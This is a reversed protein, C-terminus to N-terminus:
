IRYARLKLSTQRAFTADPERSSGTRLPFAAAFGQRSRSGTREFDFHAPVRWCDVDDSAGPTASRFGDEQEQFTIPHNCDPIRFSDGAVRLAEEQNGRCGCRQGLCCGNRCSVFSGLRASPPHEDFHATKIEDDMGDVFLRNGAVSAGGSLAQRSSWVHWHRFNRNAAIRGWEALGAEGDHIEQGGGVLAILVAWEPLRDMISLMLAPESAVDALTDREAATARQLFEKRVKTSDWARQAEDFVIVHEPPLKDKPRYERLFSHVSQIFTRIRRRSDDMREGTREHHDRALGESIVRVLPGNGSLFAGAPRGDQMLDPSHVANLGALTKGAGPVGTVFCIIKLHEAQARGVAEVLLDTTKTLNYADAHAHSLERVSQHAFLMQAAEVITPIPAYASEDWAQLDTQVRGAAAPYSAIAHQIANQVSDQNAILVERVLENEPFATLNQM